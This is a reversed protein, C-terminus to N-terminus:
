ETMPMGDMGSPPDYSGHWGILTREFSDVYYRSGAPISVVSGGYAVRMTETARREVAEGWLNSSPLLDPDHSPNWLSESSEAVRQLLNVLDPHQHQQAIDAASHMERTELIGNAGLRILERSASEHGHCAALHLFTWGSIPERYRSCARALEPDQRWAALVQEWNGCRASEYTQEITQKLEAMIGFKETIDEAEGFNRSNIYVSGKKSKISEM